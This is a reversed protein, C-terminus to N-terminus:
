AIKISNQLKIYLYWGATLMSHLILIIAKPTHNLFAAKYAITKLSLVGLIKACYWDKQQAYDDLIVDIVFVFRYSSTKNWASHRQADSFAFFEGEKWEIENGAINMGCNPLGEPIVIGLHCRATINTDGRHPYIESQPELVNLAAYSLNPINKLISYTKPYKRCIHTKRWRYNFFCINRWSKANTVLNPNHNPVPIDSPNIDSLMEERIIHWNNRVDDMWSFRSIDYFAPANGKYESNFLFYFPSEKPTGM